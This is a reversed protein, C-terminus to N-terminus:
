KEEKDKASDTQRQKQKAEKAAARKTKITESLHAFAIVPHTFTLRPGSYRMVAAIKARM